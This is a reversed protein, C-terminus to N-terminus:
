FRMNAAAGEGSSIKSKYLAWERRGESKWAAVQALAEEQTAFGRVSRDCFRNTTEAIWPKGAEEFALDCASPGEHYALKGTELNCYPCIM